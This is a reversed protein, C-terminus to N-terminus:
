TYLVPSWFIMKKIFLCAYVVCFLGMMIECSRIVDRLNFEWPSGEHGFKHFVMTEEHLRKNFLVLNSLISRSISPYLSSCIALYDDQVLEDM